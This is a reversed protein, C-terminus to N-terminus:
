SPLADQEFLECSLRASFGGSAITSGTDNKFKVCVYDSVLSVVITAKEDTWAQQATSAGSAISSDLRDTTSQLVDGTGTM